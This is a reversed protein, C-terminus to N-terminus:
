CTSFSVYRHSLLICNGVSGYTGFDILDVCVQSSHSSTQRRLFDQFDGMIQRVQTNDHTIDMCNDNEM